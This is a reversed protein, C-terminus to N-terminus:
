GGHCVSFQQCLIWVYKSLLSEVDPCHKFMDKGWVVEEKQWLHLQVYHIARSKPCLTSRRHFRLMGTSDPCQFLNYLFCRNIRLCVLFGLVVVNVSPVASWGIISFVMKNERSINCHLSKASFINWGFVLLKLKLKRLLLDENGICFVHWM